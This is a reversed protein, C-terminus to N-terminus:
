RLTSRQDVPPMLHFNCPLGNWLDVNLAEVITDMPSNCGANSRFSSICRVLASMTCARNGTGMAYFETQTIMHQIQGWSYIFLIEGQQASLEHHEKKLKWSHIKTTGRQSSLNLNTKNKLITKRYWTTSEINLKRKLKQMPIM